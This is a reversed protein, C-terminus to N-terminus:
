KSKKKKFIWHVFTMLIMKGIARRAAFLAFMLLVYLLAVIAFAAVMSGLWNGIFFGLTIGFFLLFLFAFIVSVVAVMIAASLMAIQKAAKLKLLLLKEQILAKADIKLRSFYNPNEEMM